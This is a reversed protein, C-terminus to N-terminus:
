SHCDTYSCFGVVFAAIYELYNLKNVSCCYSITKETEKVKLQKETDMETDNEQQKEQM